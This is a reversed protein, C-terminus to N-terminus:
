NHMTQLRGLDLIRIRGSKIELIDEDKFDTLTRIVTEKATGVMSALDDRLIKIGKEEADYRENIRILAEAVRKRVSNYALHLLQEERETINFAMLRLFTQSVDKNEYLLELFDEKPILRIACNEMALATERYPTDRLPAHYGFFDGARYITIIFDKGEDNTLSLKIKGSEVYYVYRAYDGEAFIIDKKSFRRLERDELVEQLAEEGRGQQQQQQASRQLRMEIVDLLEIDDFPKTLYDAAGLNMGKRFDEREAKATLFIFPINATRPNKGLIHLVGYGDLEPMMVDCIILDPQHRAALRVGEKGEAATLVEYNSLELLEATNERVELNDEILLITKAM